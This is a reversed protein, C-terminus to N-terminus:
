RIFDVRRVGNGGHSGFGTFFWYCHGDRHALGLRRLLSLWFDLVAMKGVINTKAFLWEIWCSVGRPFL